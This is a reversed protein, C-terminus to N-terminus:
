TSSPVTGCWVTMCTRFWECAVGQARAQTLVDQVIGRECPATFFIEDVFHKRVHQFMTDLTGVVDGSAATFGSGAGPSDIFGKFTYGLNRISELHHRLAHAEPGTGVILVNRTGVGREFRRNLLVRYVLRRLSLAITVLGVTILVVSRPIDEAHVLYLTGTLLLGSTLCAQVSLRQEHLFGNLRTPSYLHLRRSTIILSITYGCLLALLIGMPRGHILTGHWFGRAGAVPGTHFKYLTALTAAGLITIGDVVMWLKITGRANRTSKATPGAWEPASTVSTSVRQWFESTAM